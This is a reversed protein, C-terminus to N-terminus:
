TFVSTLKLLDVTRDRIQKLQVLRVPRLMWVLKLDHVTVESYVM